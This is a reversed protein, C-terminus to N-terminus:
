LDIILFYSLMGDLDSLSCNPRAHCAKGRSSTILPRQLQLFFVITVRLLIALHLAAIEFNLQTHNVSMKTLRRSISHFHKHIVDTDTPQPYGDEQCSKKVIDQARRM